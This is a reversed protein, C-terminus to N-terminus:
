NYGRPHMLSAILQWTTKREKTKRAFAMRMERAVVKNTFQIMAAAAASADVSSLIKM